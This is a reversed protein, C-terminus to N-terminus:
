RRNFAEWISLIIMMIFLIGLLGGFLAGLTGITGFANSFASITITVLGSTLVMIIVIAGFIMAVIKEFESNGRRNM